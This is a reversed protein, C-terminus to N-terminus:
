SANDHQGTYMLKDEIFFINHNDLRRVIAIENKWKKKKILSRFVKPLRGSKCVKALKSYIQKANPQIITKPCNPLRPKSTSISWGGVEL